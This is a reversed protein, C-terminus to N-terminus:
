QNVEQGQMWAWFSRNRPDLLMGTLATAIVRTQHEKIDIDMLHEIGHITEHLVTDRNADQNTSLKYYITAEDQDCVGMDGTVTEAQKVMQEITWQEGLIYVTKPIM